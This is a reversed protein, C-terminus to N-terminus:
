VLFYHSYQTFDLCSRVAAIGNNWKLIDKMYDDFQIRSNQNRNLNKMNFKMLRDMIDLSSVAWDLVDAPTETTTYLNLKEGLAKLDILFYSQSCIPSPKL